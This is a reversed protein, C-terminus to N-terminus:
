RTIGPCRIAGFYYQLSIGAMVFTDNKKGNGRQRGPLGIKPEVSRDALAAAIDGRQSRIDRSDAYNGSVDDIYDNFLKRGSVEMSISWRYSLDYKLGIGYLFAGQMTNYEEGRFQGETGLERLKYTKGNLQATPNFFYVTPGLVVYPTFFYDRHGHIYPLFNFEFLFAGEALYTNFSLNRRKEYINKSDADTASLAGVSAGLRVCLRDNLNYRALAGGALHARNLRWNTNLDGFYNSAGIWGGVEWGKMQAFAQTCFCLVCILIVSGRIYKM